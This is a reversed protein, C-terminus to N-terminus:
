SNDTARIVVLYEKYRTVDYLDDLKDIFIRAMIQDIIVLTVIHLSLNVM